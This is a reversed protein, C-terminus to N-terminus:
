HAWSCATSWHRPRASAQAPTRRAGSRGRRIRWGAPPGLAVGRAALVALVRQFHDLEESALAALARVLELREPHRAALALANSAAKMECHAHDALVTDVRRLASEAWASDTSVKLCLM